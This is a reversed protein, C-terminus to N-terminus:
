DLKAQRLHTVALAVSTLGFVIFPLMLLNEVWPYIPVIDAFSAFLHTHFLFARTILGIIFIAIIAVSFQLAINWLKIPKEFNAVSLRLSGLIAAFCFLIISCSVTLKTTPAKFIIVSGLIIGSIAFGFIASFARASFHVKRLNVMNDVAKEDPMPWIARLSGIIGLSLYLVGSWIALQPAIYPQFLWTAIPGHFATLGTWTILVAGCLCVSVQTPVHSLMNPAAVLDNLRPISFYGLIIALCATPLYLFNAHESRINRDLQQVLFSVSLALTLTTIVIVACLLLRHTKTIIWIM